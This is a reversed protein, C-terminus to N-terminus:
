VCVVDVNMVIQAHSTFPRSIHNIRACREGTVKMNTMCPVGCGPCNTPFELVEGKILESPDCERLQESITPLKQEEEQVDDAVIGILKNQQLTRVYSTVETNPDPAPALPNEM